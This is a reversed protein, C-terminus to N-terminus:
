SFHNRHNYMQSSMNVIICKYVNFIKTFYNNLFKCM